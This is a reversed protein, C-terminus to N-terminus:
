VDNREKVEILTDATPTGFSSRSVPNSSGGVGPTGIAKGYVKSKLFYLFWNMSM